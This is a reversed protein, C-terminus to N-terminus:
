GFIEPSLNECELKFFDKWGNLSRYQTASLCLRWMRREKKKKVKYLTGLFSIDLFLTEHM